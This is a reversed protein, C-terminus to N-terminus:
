PARAPESVSCFPADFSFMETRTRLGPFLPETDCDFTADEFAAAPLRFPVSCDAPWVWAPREQPHPPEPVCTMPWDACFACAAAASEAVIWSLGDFLM